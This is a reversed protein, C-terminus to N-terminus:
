LARAKAVIALVVDVLLKGVRIEKRIFDNAIMGRRAWADVMGSGWILQWVMAWLTGPVGTVTKGTWIKFQREFISGLGIMIFFGGTHTWETGRGLGWLGWVHMVASVLYAGMISGPWGAIKSGPRSGFVVFLHRFFQHWRRGWFETISMALWPRNAIRPWQSASQGLFIQGFLACVAYMIDVSSYIVVMGCLSIASVQAARPLPELTNDFITDGELRYATPRMLQILYHAADLSTIKVFLKLLQIPIAPAEVGERPFPDSSWNWGLGRHNFLLDAADLFLNSITLPREVLTKGDKPTQYRRIPKKIIFTWEFSKHAIAWMALVFIFNLHTIRMPDKALGLTNALFETFNLSVGADWALWITVPLLAVRFWFTGPLMAMVAHAYYCLIVPFVDTLTLTKRLTADPLNAQISSSLQYLQDM